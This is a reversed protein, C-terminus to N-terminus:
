ARPEQGDGASWALWQDYRPFLMALGVLTVMLLLYFDAVSRTMLSLAAGIAAPSLALTLLKWSLSALGAVPVPPASTERTRISRATVLAAAAVAIFLYRAGGPGAPGDAWWASAAAAQVGATLVLPLSLAPLARRSWALYAARVDEPTM